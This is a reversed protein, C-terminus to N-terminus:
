KEAYSAHSRVQAMQSLADHDFLEAYKAKMQARAVPDSM